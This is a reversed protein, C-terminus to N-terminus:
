DYEYRVAQVVGVLKLLHERAEVHLHGGSRRRLQLVQQHLMGAVVQYDVLRAALRQPPHGLDLRQKQLVSGRGQEHDHALVLQALKAQGHLHLAVEHHM